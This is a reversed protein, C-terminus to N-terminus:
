ASVTWCLVFFALALVCIGGFFVMLGHWGFLLLLLIIFLWDSM